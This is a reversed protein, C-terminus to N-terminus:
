NQNIKLFLLRPFPLTAESDSLKGLVEIGELNFGNLSSRSRRLNTKLGIQSKLKLSFNAVGKGGVVVAGVVVVGVGGGVWCM